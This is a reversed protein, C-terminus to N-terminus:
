KGNNHFPSSILFNFNDEFIPPEANIKNKSNKNEEVNIKIEENDNKFLETSEIYKKDTNKFKLNQSNSDNKSEEEKLNKDLKVRIMDKKSNSNNKSKKSTGSIKSSNKEKISFNNINDNEKKNENEEKQTLKENENEKKNVQKDTNIVEIIVKKKNEKPTIESGNIDNNILNNNKEEEKKINKRINQNNSFINNNKVQPLNDTNNKTEKPNNEKNKNGEEKLTSSRKVYDIDNEDNNEKNDIIGNSKENINAKYDTNKKNNNKNITLIDEGGNNLRIEKKCEIHNKIIIDKLEKNFYGYGKEIYVSKHKKNILFRIQTNYIYRYLKYLMDFYKDTNKYKNPENIDKIDISYNHIDHPNNYLISSITTFILFTNLLFILGGFFYYVHEFKNKEPDNDKNKDIILPYIILFASAGYILFNILLYYILSFINLFKRPTNIHKTIVINYDSNCESCKLNFNFLINLIICLKHVKPSKKTCNCKKIIKSYDSEKLKFKSKLINLERKNSKSFDIPINDCNCISCAKQSNLNNSTIISDVLDNKM